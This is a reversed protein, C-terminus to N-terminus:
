FGSETLIEYVDDWIISKGAVFKVRVKYRREISEVKYRLIPLRHRKLESIDLKIQRLLEVESIGTDSRVGFIAETQTVRLIEWKIGSGSVKSTIGRCDMRVEKDMGKDSM